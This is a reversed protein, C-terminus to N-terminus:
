ALGVQYAARGTPLDILLSARGLFLQLDWGSLVGNLSGSSPFAAAHQCVLLAGGTSAYVLDVERNFWKQGRNHSCWQLFAVSLSIKVM